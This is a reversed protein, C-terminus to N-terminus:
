NQLLATFDFIHSFDGVLESPLHLPALTEDLTAFGQASYMTDGLPEAPM